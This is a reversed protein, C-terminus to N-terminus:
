LDKALRVGTFQWRAEPPFFNRYTARIHGVPTACSGGRLVLQNCMFKANYEGLAGAAPRSGPYPTYPSQTWEWTDGFCQAIGTGGAAANPHFRGAELFNGGPEERCAASEWEAETPLRAGSWRAFADAEYFSVHCVPEGDTVRRLGGLTFMWWAGDIRDWYLPAGWAHTRVANWGDSLWFEPRSYGGDTMFALFEGCTVLRSGLQFPQVYVRHRPEENDFAFGPGEHGIWTVGGPFPLWECPVAEAFGAAAAGARYVPRTPNLALAHKIDTLILEQHQQEHNIGLEIVAAVPEPLDSGASDLYAVVARDVASRYALM